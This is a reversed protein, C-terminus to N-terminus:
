WHAGISYGRVQGVHKTKRILQLGQDDAQTGRLELILSNQAEGNLFQENIQSLSRSPHPIGTNLKRLNRSSVDDTQAVDQCVAIFLDGVFNKVLGNHLRQWGETVAQSISQLRPKM